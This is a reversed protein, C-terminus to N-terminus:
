IMEFFAEIRTKLQGINTAYDREIELVPIDNKQMESKFIAKHAVFPDCFKLVHNIIGKAQYKKYFNIARPITSENPYMRASSTDKLYFSSLDKLPDDTTKEIGREYFSIGLDTDNVIVDIDLDLLFELFPDGLTLLSGTTIVKKRGVGDKTELNNLITELEPIMVDPGLIMAKYNLNQLEVHDLSNNEIKNNNIERLLARMKNYKDIANYVDDNSINTNFINELKAKLNRIEEYFFSIAPDVSTTPFVITILKPKLYIDIMESATLDGNCYNGGILYEIKDYLANNEKFYGITARAFPCTAQTLYETGITAMEDNGGLCLIIPHCGAAYLLEIPVLMHPFIGIFPKSVQNLNSVIDDLSNITL